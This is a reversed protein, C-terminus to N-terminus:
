ALLLLLKELLEPNEKMFGVVKEITSPEDEELKKQLLEDDASNMRRISEKSEDIIQKRCPGCIGHREPKDSHCVLCNKHKDNAENMAVDEDTEDEFTDEPELSVDVGPLELPKEAESEDAMESAEEKQEADDLMKKLKMLSHRRKLMDFRENKHYDYLDNGAEDTGVLGPTIKIAREKELPAEEEDLPTYVEQEEAEMNRKGPAEEDHDELTVPEDFLSMLSGFDESDGRVATKNIIQDVLDAEKAFGSSDLADALAVLKNIVLKM